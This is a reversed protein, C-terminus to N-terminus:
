ATVIDALAAPHIIFIEQLQAPVLDLWKPHDESAQGMKTCGCPYQISGLAM